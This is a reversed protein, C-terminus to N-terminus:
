LHCVVYIWFPDGHQHNAMRKKKSDAKAYGMLKSIPPLADIQAEGLYVQVVMKVVDPQGPSQLERLSNLISMDLRADSELRPLNRPSLLQSSLVRLLASKVSELSIPKTVYDDMGAELARERDGTLANGTVAIIPLPDTRKQARILGTAEYGDMGPM